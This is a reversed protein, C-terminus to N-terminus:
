MKVLGNTRWGGGLQQIVLKHSKLGICGFHVVRNPSKEGFPFKREVAARALKDTSWTNGDMLLDLLLHGLPTLKHGNTNPPDFLKAELGNWRANEDALLSKLASEQKAVSELRGQLDEREKSISAIREKM